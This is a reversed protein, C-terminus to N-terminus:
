FRIRSRRRKWVVTCSVWGVDMIHIRAIDGEYIETENKDKLGTFQMLIRDAASLHGNPYDGGEGDLGGEPYDLLHKKVTNAISKPSTIMYRGDRDWARFKIERM